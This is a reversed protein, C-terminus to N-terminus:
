DHELHERARTFLDYVHVDDLSYYMHRGQRRQRVLGRDRLLRLQHSVAPQNLGLQEGIEHVCREGAALQAIVRLRTPDALAKFVGALRFADHTALESAGDKNQVDIDMIM